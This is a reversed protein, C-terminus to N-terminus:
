WFFHLYKLKIINQKIAFTKPNNKVFNKGYIYKVIM